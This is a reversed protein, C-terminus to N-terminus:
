RKWDDPFYKELEILEELPLYDVEHLRRIAEDTPIRREELGENAYARINADKLAEIYNQVRYRSYWQCFQEFRQYIDEDYEYYLRIVEESTPANEVGTYLEYARLHVKLDRELIEDGGDNLSIKNRSKGYENDPYAYVDVKKLLEIFEVQFEEQTSPTSGPEKVCGFLVVCVFLLAIMAIRKRM